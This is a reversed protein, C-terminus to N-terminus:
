KELGKLGPKFHLINKYGMAKAFDAARQWANCEARYCYVIIPYEKLIPLNKKLEDLNALSYSGPLHGEEKYARESNADILFAQRAKIVKELTSYDIEPYSIDYAERRLQDYLM